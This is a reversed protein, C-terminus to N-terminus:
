DDEIEVEVGREFELEFEVTQGNLAALNRVQSGQRFWAAPDLNVLIAVDDPVRFEGNFEREVEIEAKFYVTFTQASGGTPTFTGHVVMSANAPFNPYAQRMRSLISQLDQRESADDDEDPDSNEVEFEFESYVGPPVNDTVVTAASGDLLNVLFPGGTFEECGEDENEGEREEDEQEVECDADDRELEIESVILRIDQIELTGNTGTLTIAGSSPVHNFSLGKAASLSPGAGVVAGARFLVTVRGGDGPGASDSCAWLLPPLAALLLSKTM